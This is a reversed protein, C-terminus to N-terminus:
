GDCSYSMTVREPATDLAIVLPQRRKSPRIIFCTGFAGAETHVHGATSYVRLPITKGNLDIARILILSKGGASGLDAGTLRRAEDVSLLAASQDKLLAEATPIESKSVPWVPKVETAIRPDFVAHGEVFWVDDECAAVGLALTVIACVRYIHTRAWIDM